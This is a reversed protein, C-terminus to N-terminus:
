KRLMTDQQRISSSFLEDQVRSLDTAAELRAFMEYACTLHEQRAPDDLALHRGIEYHARGQEYPMELQEATSLSKRWCQHAKAPKAELWHYLGQYLWARPQGPAFIKAFRHLVKCAGQASQALVKREVPMLNDRASGEWLSLFVEAPGAYGEISWFMWFSSQKIMRATKQAAQWAQSHHGQHLYVVALVGNLRIVEPKGLYKEPLAKADELFFMVNDAHIGGLRLACEAQGLLAWFQALPDDRQRASALAAAFHQMSQSFQGQQYAVLALLLRAEEQWRRLELRALLEVSCELAEVAETWQGIGMNYLGIVELVYARTSLQNVRHAGQQALEGYFKALGPLPINSSTLSTVAYGRAIEASAGARESGNLDYLAACLMPLLEEAFFYVQGLRSMTRAGELLALRKEPSREVLRLPLLRHLSQRLIQRLLTALWGKKTTPLPRGTLIMAQELQQRCEQLHGMQYHAEGLWRHWRAKQLASVQELTCVQSLVFTAEQFWGKHEYYLWLGELYVVLTELDRQTFLWAWASRVNEIDRDLKALMFTDAGEESPARWAELFNAYYHSHKQHTTTREGAHTALQEAGYQRLLEHVRYRGQEDRRLWSKDVLAALLPVSAGTVEEAADLEFGGQFISLRRFARQEEESLLDWSYTLVVRMNQHREAVISTTTTLMDLGTKFAPSHDHELRTVIEACTLVRVWNAALELALPFGAVLQCIRSVAAQEAAFSFDPRIRQATQVFLRVAPYTALTDSALAPPYPLGEVDFLWEAEVGLRVRSTVLLKVDPAHQLLDILFEAAPQLQEFNDLLLLMEKDALHNLLLERPPRQASFLYNLATAINNILLDAAEDARASSVGVLSVFRVGHQFTNVQAEAAALALRTKGIGGPGVLTLLHCDPNALLLAIQDLESERGVLPTLHAPLNHLSAATPSSPRSLSGQIQNAQETAGAKIQTYLEVTAPAPEVALEEALARRCAEYQALAASRQGSYALLWMLQQHAEEHWPELTLLKRTVQIGETFDGRQRADQALHSLTHRAVQRLREQEVLAWEEFAPADQISFDYLFDGRYLRIAARLQEIKRREPLARDDTAALAEFEAVDLGYIQDFNFAVDQRAIILHEAVSQRLKTLTLRLNAKAREEPMEGWLLGALASRSHAEGTVALYILLAQGKASILDATLTQGDKRIEPKGLVALQLEGYM